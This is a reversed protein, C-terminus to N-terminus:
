RARSRNDPQAPPKRASAGFSRTSRLGCHDTSNTVLVVQSDIGHEAQSLLDAAVWRPNATEDAVVVLESPGALMDIAVNYPPQSILAKAAAVFLNGPGFIKDVKPVTETGIGMAAIAQAGGVTFITKVGCLAAAYLIEPAPPGTKAPPTCLVIERLGCHKRTNGADFCYVRAARGRRSRVSWGTRDGEVRPPM